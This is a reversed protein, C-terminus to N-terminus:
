RSIEITAKWTQEDNVHTLMYHALDARSISRPRSIHTNIAVRYEGTLPGNSLMPARIITWQTQSAAVTTEMRTMDAYGH